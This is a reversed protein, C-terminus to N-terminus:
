FSGKTLFHLVGFSCDPPTIIVILQNCSRNRSALIFNYYKQEKITKNYNPEALSLHKYSITHLIPYPNFKHFCGLDHIE